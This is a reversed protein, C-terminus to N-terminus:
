SPNGIRDYLVTNQEVIITERGEINLLIQQVDRIFLEYEKGTNKM